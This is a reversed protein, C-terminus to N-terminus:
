SSSLRTPRQMLLHEKFEFSRPKPLISISDMFEWCPRLNIGIVHQQTIAISSAWPGQRPLPYFALPTNFHPTFYCHRATPGCTGGQSLALPNYVPPCELHNRAATGTIRIHCKQPCAPTEYYLAQHGWHQRYGQLTIISLAPRPQHLTRTDWTLSMGGSRSHTRGSSHSSTQLKARHESSGRLNAQLMSCMNKIVLLARNQSSPDWLGIGSGFSPKCNWALPSSFSDQKCFLHRSLCVQRQCFTEKKLVCRM